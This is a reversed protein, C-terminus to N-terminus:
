NEEESNIKKPRWYLLALGLGATLLIMLLGELMPRFIETHSVVQIKLMIFTGITAGGFTQMVIATWLTGSRRRLEGLVISFAMVGLTYRVLHSLMSGFEYPVVARLFPFHWLAWVLGTFLHAVLPNIGNDLLKPTMYGRFGSEEFINQILQPILMPLFLALAASPTPKVPPCQVAGALQGSGVVILVLVPVAIVSITYTLGNGRVAPRWALSRWGDGAFGRLLFSVIMPSLLWLIAGAGMDNADTPFGDIWGGLFSLLLIGIIYLYLTRM